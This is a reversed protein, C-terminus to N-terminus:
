EETEVPPTEREEDKPKLRVMEKGDLIYCRDDFVYMALNHKHFLHILVAQSEKEKKAWRMRNNRAGILEDFADDMRKLKVTAVGEGDMAPLDDTRPM